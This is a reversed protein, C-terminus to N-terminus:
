FMVTKFTHHLHVVYSPFCELNHLTLSISFQAMVCCMFNTSEWVGLFFSFESFHMHPSPSPYASVSTHVPLPSHFEHAGGSEM